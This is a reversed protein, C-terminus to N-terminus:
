WPRQSANRSNFSSGRTGRAVPVAWAEQQQAAPPILQSEPDADFYEPDHYESRPTSNNVSAGDPSGARDRGEMWQGQPVKPVAESRDDASRRNPRWEDYHKRNPDVPTQPAPAGAQGEACDLEALLDVCAITQGNQDLRRAVTTIEAPSVSLGMYSFVSQLHHKPIYGCGEQDAEILLAKLQDVLGGAHIQDAVSRIIRSYDSAPFMDKRAEQYNLTFLDPEGLEFVRSHVTIRSGEVFDKAMYKVTRSGPKRVISRELFKGGLIGSNRVPPEFISITEDVLFYSIVFRRDKDSAHKVTFGARPDEAFWAVFRMVQGSCNQFQLWDAKPPKPRLSLCNQRTDEEGGIRLQDVPIRTERPQPKEQFQMELSQPMEKDLHERYWARTFEDCDFLKMQRGYVYITKGVEMEHWHYFKKETNARTGASMPRAGVSYIYKPLPARKLMIPYKDRGSNRVEVEAIEVTDDVLYYHLIYPMKDGYLNKRDDWSVYFRLVKKDMALWKYTEEKIRMKNMKRFESTMKKMNEREKMAIHYQDEKPEGDPMVERGERELFSRTAGDCAYLYFVRDYVELEEGVNLDEVDLFSTTSRGRPVRHRRLFSGQPMGSNDERQELIQLTGDELYFLVTCKRVRSHELPSEPVSEQFYAYFRLVKRDYAVWPPLVQQQNTQNFAETIAKTSKPTYLTQQKTTGSTDVKREYPHDMLVAIGQEVRCRQQKPRQYDKPNYVKNGPLLPIPIGAIGLSGMGGAGQQQQQQQQEAAPKSSVYGNNASTYGAGRRFTSM